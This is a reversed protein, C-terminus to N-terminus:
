GLVGQSIDKALIVQRRIIVKLQVVGSLEGAAIQLYRIDQSVLDERKFIVDSTLLLVRDFM